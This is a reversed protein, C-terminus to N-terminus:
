VPFRLLAAMGDEAHLEPVMSAAAGTLFTTALAVDVLGAAFPEGGLAAVQQRELGAALPDHSMFATRDDDPREQLLLTEVQAATLAGLVPGAGEVALSKARMEAFRDLLGATDAAVVAEVADRVAQSDHEQVGENAPSFPVEELLPRLGPSADKRMLGCARADGGFIVLRPRASTVLRDLVDVVDKANSEWKNEVRQQHRPYSVGGSHAEHLLPDKTGQEGAPLLVNALPGHLVIDAGALDCRVTVYTIKHQRWELARGLAPLAGVRALDRGLPAAGTELLLVEGSSEVICAAGARQDLDSVQALARAMRDITPRAVDLEELERSM